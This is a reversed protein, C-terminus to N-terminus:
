KINSCIYGKLAFSLALVSMKKQFDFRCWHDNAVDDKKYQELTYRCIFLDTYKTHVSKTIKENPMADYVIHLAVSTRIHRFRM